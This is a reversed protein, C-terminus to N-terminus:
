GPPFAALAKPNPPPSSLPVAPLPTCGRELLELVADVAAALRSDAHREFLAEINALATVDWEPTRTM